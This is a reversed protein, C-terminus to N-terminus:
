RLGLRGDQEEREKRLMETPDPLPAQGRDRVVLERAQAALDRWTSRQTSCLEDYLQKSLVVALAKGQREVVVPGNQADRLVEGFHVRAETASLTKGNL